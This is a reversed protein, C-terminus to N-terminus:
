TPPPDSGAPPPERGKLSAVLEEPTLFEVGLQRALDLLVPPGDLPYCVVVARSSPDSHLRLL